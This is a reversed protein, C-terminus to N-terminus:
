ERRDQLLLSRCMHVTRFVSMTKPQQSKKEKEVSSHTQGILNTNRLTPRNQDVNYRQIVAEAMFVSHFCLSDSLSSLHYPQIQRIEESNVPVHYM